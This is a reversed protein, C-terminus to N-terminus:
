DSDLEITAPASRKRCSRPAEKHAWIDVPLYIKTPLPSSVATSVVYAITSYPTFHFDLTVVEHCLCWAVLYECVRTQQRRSLRIVLAGALADAVDTDKVLLDVLKAGTLRQSNLRMDELIARVRSIVGTADM